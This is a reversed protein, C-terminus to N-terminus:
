DMLEASTVNVLPNGSGNPFEGVIGTIRWMENTLMISSPVNLEVVYQYNEASDFMTAVGSTDNLGPQVFAIYGELSITKGLYKPLNDSLEQFSVLNSNEKQECGSLGVFVFLVIIGIIALQKKMKGGGFQLGFDFVAKYIRM